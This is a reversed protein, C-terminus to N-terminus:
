YVTKSHRDTALYEFLVALHAIMYIVLANAETLYLTQVQFDGNYVVQILM